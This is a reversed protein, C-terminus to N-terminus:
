AVAIEPEEAKDDCTSCTPLGCGHADDCGAESPHPFLRPLKGDIITEETVLVHTVGQENWKPLNYMAENLAKEVISRLGRAGTKTRDAQAAVAQVAGQTLHLSIGDAEFLAVYQKLLANRPTTMVHVMQEQTLASLKALVPFRGVFEPLFGYNIMDEVQVNTGSNLQADSAADSASASLAAAANAAEGAAQAQPRPIPADFGLTADKKRETVLRQLGTFAGGCIFLINSTDIAVHEARPNKRGGREPVNVVTGELMKLLAQQVGEGSVDRTMAIADAKRALKDIEDIYVIGVQTAEVNQGSNQYLKHLVSEVDEGVYGAQTLCTADAIAFPVDVLRALTRALLTKGSGTPGLLLINSKDLELPESPPRDITILELSAEDEAAFAEAVNPSPPAPPAPVTSAGETISGDEGAVASAAGRDASESLIRLRKYHNHVAVSLVRKTDDQGIVFRDLEAKFVEPPPISNPSFSTGAHARGVASAPTAAAGPSPATGPAASGFLAGAM